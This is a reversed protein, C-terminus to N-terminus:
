SGLLAIARLGRAKAHAGLYLAKWAPALAQPTLSAAFRKGCTIRETRFEADDLLRSVAKALSSPNREVVSLGQGLDVLGGVAPAVVPIGAGAAEIAALPLGENRSTMCLVDMCGLAESAPVFGTFHVRLGMKRAQMEVGQRLPGDGAILGQVPYSLTRLVQLFLFPDKVPVLRGLFGVVPLSPDLAAHWSAKQPTVSEIPIALARWRHRLGIRYKCHLEEQLSPTLAHLRGTLGLAREIWTYAASTRRSFYGHLVHGHFTHISPIGLITAALRGLTGGKATHTHVVEPQLKKLQSMLAMLARLDDSARINRSLGPIEIVHLGAARVLPSLDDEGVDCAGTLVSMEFGHSKLMSGVSALVRAPGGNNLRAIVHVVRM